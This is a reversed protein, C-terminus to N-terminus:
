TPPPASRPPYLVWSCSGKSARVFSALGSVSMTGLTTTGGKLASTSATSTAVCHSGIESHRVNRSKPQVACTPACGDPGCLKPCHLTPMGDSQMQCCLQAVEDQPPAALVAVSNVQCQM